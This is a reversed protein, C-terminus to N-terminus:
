GTKSIYIESQLFAIMSKDALNPMGIAFLLCNINHLRRHNFLKIRCYKRDYFFISCKSKAVENLCTHKLAPIHGWFNSCSENFYCVIWSIVVCFVSINVSFEGHKRVHPQGRPKLKQCTAYARAGWCAATVSSFLNWEQAADPFLPARACRKNIESLSLTIWIRPRRTRAALLSVIYTNLGGIFNYRPLYSRILISYM